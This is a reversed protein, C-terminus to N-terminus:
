EFEVISESLTYENKRIIEGGARVELIVPKVIDLSTSDYVIVKEVSDLVNKGSVAKIKIPNTGLSLFAKGIWTSDHEVAADKINSEIIVEIDKHQETYRNLKVFIEKMDTSVRCTDDSPS